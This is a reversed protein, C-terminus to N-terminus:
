HLDSVNMLNDQGFQSVILHYQKKLKTLEDKRKIEEIGEVDKGQELLNIIEEVGYVRLSDIPNTHGRNALTETTKFSTIPLYELAKLSTEKPTKVVKVYLILGCKNYTILNGLSYIVLHERAGKITSDYVIEGDKTVIKEFPQLCHPGSGVIIDAGGICLLKAVETQIITPLKHGWMGWHIYVVVFDVGDRKLHEIKRCIRRIDSLTATHMEGKSDGECTNIDIRSVKRGQLQIDLFEMNLYETYSLFAVSIGKKNIVRTDFNQSDRKGTGVFALNLKNLADITLDIGIGERDASHNNATNIINWGALKVAELFAPHGNFPAPFIYNYDLGKAIPLELNCFSLDSLLIYKKINKFYRSYNRDFNHKVKIGSLFVDGVFSVTTEAIIDEAPIESFTINKERFYDESVDGKAYIINKNNYYRDDNFNYAIVQHYTVLTVLIFAVASISSNRLFQKKGKIRMIHCVILEM